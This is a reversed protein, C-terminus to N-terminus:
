RPCSGHLTRLTLDTWRCSIYDNHCTLACKCLSYTCPYALAQICIKHCVPVSLLCISGYSSAPLLCISRILLPLHFCCIDSFLTRLFLSLIYVFCPSKSAKNNSIRNTTTKYRAESWWIITPWALEHNKFNSLIQLQFKPRRISSRIEKHEIAM